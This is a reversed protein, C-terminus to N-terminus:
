ALRGEKLRLWIGPGDEALDFSEVQPFAFLYGAEVPQSALTLLAERLAPTDKPPASLRVRRGEALWRSVQDKWNPDSVTATHRHPSLLDVLLDRDPIPLTTYPNQATLLRARVQSGRPWLLGFIAQFRWVPDQAAWGADELRQTVHPDRSAVFAMVRVDIEVELRAEETKWRTVLDHLLADMAPSSGPRLIRAQLAATVPHTLAIGARTFTERLTQYARVRDAHSVAERVAAVADSVKSDKQMCELVRILQVDVTEFDGPELAAEVLRFFQAPDAAYRRVLEEVLGGGGLTVETLWVDALDPNPTEDDLSAPGPDIDLVLDGADMQPLLKRCAELIAGGLTARMRDGVWSKWADNPAEWLITAADCLVDLVIAEHCLTALTDHVRQRVVTEGEEEQVRLSQFLTELSASMRESLGDTKLRDLATKLDLSATLAEATLVSLFIQQLWDRQFTNALGDLREDQLVLDRFRSTRLARLKRPTAHPGFLEELPPLRFTFRLGDVDQTFGVGVPGGDVFRLYTEFEEVQQDLKRRITAQSGLAFRRVELPAHRAHTYARVDTLWHNWVSEEPVELPLGEDRTVIQTRWELWANSTDMVDPPIQVPRLTLPRFCPIEVVRDGKRMLFSGLPISEALYNALPLDQPGSEFTPPAIWHSARGHVIGYRRSVRGPAFTRMAQLVALYDIRAEDYRTQAPTEIRVEPLLLDTFFNPPVFDPLPDTARMPDPRWTQKDFDWVKWASELRRLLTPLVATMLARPPEWLLATVEETSLRLSAQLHKELAEQIEQRELIDKVVKLAAQQRSSLSEDKGPASFDKWISGKGQAHLIRAIWDMTAFVAQIKLVYRNSVPLSRAELRPSFLQDYGQYAQRDRGYDSLVVATWPRATRRRGARGKRQLFAAMDRPAKHQVVAGVNPDNYGVELSATAVIIDAEASVGQDQSSTRGIELRQDLHHGLTEPFHWSQGEQLRELPDADQHKRLAALPLKRTPKGFADRGEADLLNHYLRNTVDLDDTFAFVRPPYLGGSRPDPGFPDLCRRLLMLTQITTSLLSTGAVPDGRLAIMYEMGEAELDRGVDVMRVDGRELGVLTAFFDEANELTASLGTVHIPKGIAHQYRRLLNAVQAGTTGEYTHVEDLLMLRPAREAWLGFATGYGSDSMMRNLMETTTFLLDPPAKAMRDRTLVLVDDSLTHQCSPCHLCEEGHQLAELPWFLPGECSPCSLYPCEYGHHSHRWKMRVSAENAFHPSAGYFAGLTLKRRGHRAMLADLRRLEGYTEAFQDKLLEKRPYIAITKTWTSAETVVLDAITALAPLYFSLTKGTGTGACVIMGKSKGATLDSLMAHTAEAQFNALLLPGRDPANCLAEIAERQVPTPLDGLDTLLREPALHRKPYLRPRAQFRFDAVLTPALRWDKGPFWQRLTALLRVTEAMRTRYLYHDGQYFDMLLGMRQMRDILDDPDGGDAADLAQEALNRVEEYTFGGDIVGWTLLRQELTELTNLLSLIAKKWSQSETSM